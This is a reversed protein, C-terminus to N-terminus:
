NRRMRDDADDRGPAKGTRRPSGMRSSGHRNSEIDKLLRNLHEEADPGEVEASASATGRRPRIFSNYFGSADIEREEWTAEPEDLIRPGFEDEVVVTILWGEAAHAPAIQL